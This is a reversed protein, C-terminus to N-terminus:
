NKNEGLCLSWTESGYNVTSIVRKHVSWKNKSIDREGEMFKGPAM